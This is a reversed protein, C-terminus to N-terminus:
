LQDRDLGWLILVLSSFGGAAQTSWRDWLPHWVVRVGLASRIEGSHGMGQGQDCQGGGGEGMGSPGGGGRGPPDWVQTRPVSHAETREWALCGPGGRLLPDWVAM